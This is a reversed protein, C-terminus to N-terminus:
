RKILKLLTISLSYLLCLAGSMMVQSVLDTGPTLIAAAILIIILSVRWHEILQSSRIIGIWGLLLMGLPLEFIIGTALLLFGCFDIYRGIALQNPALQQGYQLLFDLTFPLIGYYGFLIGVCFLMFFLMLVPTLWRQENGKLGPQVFRIIHYLWVPLALLFGAMLSLKFFAIFAEGPELQVFHVEGPVVHQLLRVIPTIQWFVLGSTMMWALLCGIIRNRLETFHTNFGSLGETNNNSM